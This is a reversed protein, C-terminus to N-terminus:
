FLGYEPLPFRTPSSSKLVNEPFTPNLFKGAQSIRWIRLLSFRRLSLSRSWDWPNGDRLRRRTSIRALIHFGMKGGRWEWDRRKRIHKIGWTLIEQARSPLYQVFGHTPDAGTFWDFNNWFNATGAQFDKQLYYTTSTYSQAFQLFPLFFLLLHIMAM